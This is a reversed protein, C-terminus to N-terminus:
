LTPRVSYSSLVLYATLLGAELGDNDTEREKLEGLQRGVLTTQVHLVEHAGAPVAADVRAMEAGDVVDQLFESRGFDGGREFGQEVDIGHWYEPVLPLLLLILFLFLLLLPFVRSTSADNPPSSRRQNGVTSDNFFIGFQDTVFNVVIQLRAASKIM